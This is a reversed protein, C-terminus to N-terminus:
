TFVIMALPSAAPTTNKASSSEAWAPWSAKYASFIVLLAPYCTDNHVHELGANVVNAGENTLLDVNYGNILFVHKLLEFHVGLMNPILITYDKRMEKTFEVRM